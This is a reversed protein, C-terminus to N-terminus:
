YNLSLTCSAATDAPTAIDVRIWAGDVPDTLASINISVVYPNITSMTLEAATIVSAVADISTKTYIDFEIATTTETADCLIDATTWTGADIQVYEGTYVSTLDTFIFQANKPATISPVDFTPIAAAGNSRLYSGDSGLGLETVDGASDSYFLRWATGTLDTIVSPDSASPISWTNDGRLYTTAGAAGTASLMPIDVSDVAITLSTAGTVDGTHNANTVLADWSAIDATTIGFADSATWVQDTEDTTVFFTLDTQLQAKFELYTPYFQATGNWGYLNNTDTFDVAYAPVSVLM